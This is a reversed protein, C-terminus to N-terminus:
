LIVEVYTSFVAKSIRKAFSAYSWRWMRPSFWESWSYSNGNNPDGGCVHLFCPYYQPILLMGPIVEVYTSFVSVILVSILCVSPDGGCVHLFSVMIISSSKPLPIVEVYTSFVLCMTLNLMRLSPDGGCVHLFCNSGIASFDPKLIVEVYTSFVQWNRLNLRNPCSWRWM